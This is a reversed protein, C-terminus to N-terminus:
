WLAIEKLYQVHKDLIYLLACVKVQSGCLVIMHYLDTSASSKEKSDSGAEHYIMHFAKEKKQDVLLCGVSIGRLDSEM